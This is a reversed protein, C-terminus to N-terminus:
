TAHYDYLAGFIRSVHHDYFGSSNICNFEIVKVADDVVALDMVCCADPLWKDAFGQAEDLVDTSTENKLLAVGNHRYMSGDVVTGGVVFYRWEAQIKKPRAIIIETDGDLKYSGSSDCLMADALWSAIEGSPMVTGAFQKLDESPRIFWDRDAPQREFFSIAQSVTILSEGNLMDSRNLMAQRYNFTSLDFHLGEWGLESALTTMLTSGYPIYSTGDLPNDSRIEHSFPIVGVYQHPLNLGEVAAKIKQLSQEAMLNYQIVFEM